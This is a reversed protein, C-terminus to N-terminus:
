ELHVIGRSNMWAMGQAWDRVDTVAEVGDADGASAMVGAGQGPLMGGDDLDELRHASAFAAEDRVDDEEYAVRERQHLLQGRALISQKLPQM